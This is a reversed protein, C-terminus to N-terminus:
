IAFVGMAKLAMILSLLGFLLAVAIGMDVVIFRQNRDMWGKLLVFKGIVLKILREM